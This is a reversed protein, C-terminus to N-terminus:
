YGEGTGAICRRLTSVDDQKWHVRRVTSLGRGNLFAGSDVDGQLAESEGRGWLWSHASSDENGGWGRTQGSGRSLWLVASGAIVEVHGACRM